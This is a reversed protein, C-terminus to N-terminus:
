DKDLFEVAIWAPPIQIQGKLQALTDPAPTVTKVFGLIKQKCLPVIDTSVIEKLVSKNLYEFVMNILANKGNIM